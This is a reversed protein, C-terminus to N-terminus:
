KKSWKKNNKEDNKITKKIMKISNKNFKQGIKITKKVM